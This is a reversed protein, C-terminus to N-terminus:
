KSFQVSTQMCDFGNHASAIAHVDVDYFMNTFFFVFNCTIYELM